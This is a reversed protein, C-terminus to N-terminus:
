RPSLDQELGWSKKCMRFGHELKPKTKLRERPLSAGRCVVGEVAITRLKNGSGGVLTLQPGM